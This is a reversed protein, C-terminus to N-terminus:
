HKTADVPTETHMVCLWKGDKHMWVSSDAMEQKIQRSTSREILSQKVKYTLVASDDTPFVVNLDSLEFSQITMTGQEAMQRFQRHDFQMTGHTSVMVSPEDLMSLSLDTDEDIMSQWFKKELNIIDNRNTQM